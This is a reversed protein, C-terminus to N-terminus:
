QESLAEDCHAQAGFRWTDLGELHAEEVESPGEHLLEERDIVRDLPRAGHTYRDAWQGAVVEVQVRERRPGLHVRHQAAGLVALDQAVADLDISAEVAGDDTAGAIGFSRSTM